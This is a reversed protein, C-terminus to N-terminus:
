NPDSYLYCRRRYTSVTLVTGRKPADELARKSNSNLFFEFQAGLARAGRRPDAPQEAFFDLAIFSLLWQLLPERQLSRLSMGVSTTSGSSGNSTTSTATTSWSAAETVSTDGSGTAVSLLADDKDVAVFVVFAAVVALIDLFRLCLVMVGDVLWLSEVAVADGLFIRLGLVSSEKKAVLGVLSPPPPCERGCGGDKLAWDVVVV